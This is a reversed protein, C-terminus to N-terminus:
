WVVKISANLGWTSNALLYDLHVNLKVLPVGIQQGFFLRPTITTPSDSQGLDLNGTLSANSIGGGSVTIPAQLSTKAEAEGFNLDAGAGVYSTLAYLYQIGTSLEFPISWTQVEAGANVLANNATLTIGSSTFSKTERKSTNLKLYSRELGSTFDVGTWYLMRGPIISYPDIYKYRFHVGFNSSEADITVGSSTKDFDSLPSFNFFVKLKDLSIGWKDEFYGGWDFIGMNIGGMLVLPQVGIGRLQNGDVDGSIVDSFGNNGLDAGIGIGTQVIFLDIDNAYDTGVAKGAAITANAMGKLYSSADADPLDNNIDTEYQSILSQVSSNSCDSGSCTISFPGAFVNSSFIFFTIALLYNIKLMPLEKKQYVM